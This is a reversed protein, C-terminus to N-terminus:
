IESLTDAWQAADYGISEIESLVDNLTDLYEQMQEGHESDRISEPLNDYSEQEDDIVQQLDGLIEDKLEELNQLKKTIEKLMRRKIKNM